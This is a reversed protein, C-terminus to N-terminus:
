RFLGGIDPGSVLVLQLGEPQEGGYGLLAKVVGRALDLATDIDHPDGVTQASFTETDITVSVSIPVPSM